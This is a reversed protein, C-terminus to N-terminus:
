GHTPDAPRLPQKLRQSGRATRAAERYFARRRLRLAEEHYDRAKALNRAAERSLRQPDSGLEIIKARLADRDGAPVICDPPLLEGIGGVPSGICPLGRAMAEIMARPLGEQRSPLVFLDARDLEARVVAGAPLGGSFTVGEGLGLRQAQAELAPRCRGDGVLALHIASSGALADLLVDQAKYLHEMSGVCILRLPGEGRTRPADAFAAEPLQVSSYHTTFADPAPPYRRQLAGTTVYATAAARRCIGRLARVHHLRAIARLPHSVAGPACADWPDGVIEASFPTASGILERAALNAIESPARLIVAQDPTRAARATALWTRPLALFYQWPGVYYPVGEFSVGPGDARVWATEARAAPRIRAVACVGDFVDLYRTFFDYAFPGGTWVSGDPTREFRHELFVAANM